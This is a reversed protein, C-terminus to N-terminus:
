PKWKEDDDYGGMSKGEGRVAIYAIAAIASALVVLGIVIEDMDVGSDCIQARSPRLISSRIWVTKMSM